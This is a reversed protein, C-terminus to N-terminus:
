RSDLACLEVARGRLVEQLEHREPALAEILARVGAEPLTDGSTFIDAAAYAHEPWTHLSLHSEGVLAVVSAGQPEFAHKVTGFVTCRAARAAALLAEELAAVDDLLAPDVGYLDLLLHRALV